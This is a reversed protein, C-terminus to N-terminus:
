KKQKRRQKKQSKAKARTKPPEKEPVAALWAEVAAAVEKSETGWLGICGAESIDESAKFGFVGEFVRCATQKIAASDKPVPPPLVDHHWINPTTRVIPIPPLNEDEELFSSAALIEAHWLGWGEGMGLVTKYTWKPDMLLGLAGGPLRLKKLRPPDWEEAIVILPLGLELAYDLASEVFRGREAQTLVKGFETLVYNGEFPHEAEGLLGNGYDPVLITAGSTHKAPDLSLLVAEVAM